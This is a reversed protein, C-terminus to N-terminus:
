RSTTAGGPVQPCFGFTNMTQALMPDGFMNWSDPQDQIEVMVAEIGSMFRSVQKASSYHLVPALVGPWCYGLMGAAGNTRPKCSDRVHAFLDASPTKSFLCVVADKGWGEEILPKWANNDAAPSILVPSAVAAAAPSLWGFLYQPEGLQEPFPKGLRHLDVILHLPYMLRMVLALKAPILDALSGRYLSLGSDCNATTYPVNLRQQTSKQIASDIDQPVWSNCGMSRAQDPSDGEIQVYFDTVGAYIRDGDRLMCETIRVGNVFTGNRSSHDALFCAVEDTKVVFHVRSLREDHACVLQAWDSRGVSVSDNAILVTKRGRMPGSVIELVVRM